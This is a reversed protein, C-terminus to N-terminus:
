ADPRGRPTGLVGDVFRAAERLVWQKIVARVLEQPFFTQQIGDANERELMLVQNSCDYLAYRTKGRRAESLLQNAM